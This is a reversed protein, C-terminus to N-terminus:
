YVINVMDSHIHNISDKLENILSSQQKNIEELRKVRQILSSCRNEQVPEM